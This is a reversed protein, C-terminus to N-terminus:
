GSSKSKTKRSSFLAMARFAFFVVPNAGELLLVAPELECVEGCRYTEETQYNRDWVLRM